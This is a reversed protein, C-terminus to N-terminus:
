VNFVQKFFFMDGFKNEVLYERTPSVMVKIFVARSMKFFCMVTRCVNRQELQNWHERSTINTMGPM